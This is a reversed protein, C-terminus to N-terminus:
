LSRAVWQVQGPNSALVEWSQLLHEGSHALLALNPLYIFINLIFHMFFTLLLTKILKFVHLSGVIHMGINQAVKRIMNLSNITM